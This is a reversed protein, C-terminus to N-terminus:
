AMNGWQNVFLQFYTKPADMGEFVGDVRRTEIGLRGQRQLLYLVEYVAATSPLCDAAAFHPKAAKTLDGLPHAAGDSLVDAVARRVAACVEGTMPSVTAPPNAFARPKWGGATVEGTSGPPLLTPMRADRPMATPTSSLYQGHSCTAVFMPMNIRSWFISDPHAVSLVLGVIESPMECFAAEMAAAEAMGQEMNRLILQCMVDSMHAVTGDSLTNYRSSEIKVRSPLDYGDDFLRQALANFEEMRPKFCGISGNAVYAIKAEGGRSGIFPHAWEDGGGSKSRSHIIGIRGPLSAALTQATLCDVDGTLKAYYLKGEHITAIGTYYGGAFGEQARLMELLIPAAEKKGNGVYGAINCM